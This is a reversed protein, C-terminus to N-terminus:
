EYFAYEPVHRKRRIHGIWGDNDVDTFVVGLGRTTPEYVGASKTIDTFTGDGNNRYLVDAIGQYENPVAISVCVIKTIAPFTPKWLM